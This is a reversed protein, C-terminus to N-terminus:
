TPGFGGTMSDPSGPESIRAPAVPGPASDVVSSRGCPSPRRSRPRSRSGGDHPRRGHTLGVVLDAAQVMGPDVSRPVHAGLDIGFVRGEEVLPPPPGFDTEVTGASHM